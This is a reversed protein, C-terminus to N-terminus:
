FWSHVGFPSHFCVHIISYVVVFYMFYWFLYCALQQESSACCPVDVRPRHHSKGRVVPVIMQNTSMFFVPKGRAVLILGDSHDVYFFVGTGPGQKWSRKPRPRRLCSSVPGSIFLCAMGRSKGANKHPIRPLGMTGHLPQIGHGRLRAGCMNYYGAGLDRFSPVGRGACVHRATAVDRAFLVALYHPVPAGRSMIGADFLCGSFFGQFFPRTLSLFVFLINFTSLGIREFM